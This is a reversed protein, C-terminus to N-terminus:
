EIFLRKFLREIELDKALSKLKKQSFKNSYFNRDKRSLVPLSIRPRGFIEGKKVYIKEAYYGTAEILLIGYGEVAWREDEWLSKNLNAHLYHGVEHGIFIRDKYQEEKFGLENKDPDYVAQRRNLRDEPLLPRIIPFPFSMLQKKSIKFYPALFDIAEQVAPKFKKLDLSM